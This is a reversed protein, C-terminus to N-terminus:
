NESFYMELQENLIRIKDEDNQKRWYQDLITEAYFDRMFDEIEYGCEDEFFRENECLPCDFEEDGECCICYERVTFPM